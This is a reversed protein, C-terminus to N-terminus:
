GSASAASARRRSGPQARSRARALLPQRADRQDDRGEVLLLHDRGLDRVREREVVRALQELHDDGGVAGAVARDLERAPAPASRTRSRGRPPLIAAASRRPRARTAPLDDGEAVRVRAPLGVGQARRTAAKSSRRPRSRRRGPEDEEVGLAVVLLAGVPAELHAHALELRAEAPDGGAVAADVRDAAGVVDRQGRGAAVVEREGEQERLRPGASPRRARPAPRALPHDRRELALERALPPHHDPDGVDDAGVPHPVRAAVRRQVRELDEAM